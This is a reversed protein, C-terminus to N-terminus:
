KKASLSGVLEALAKVDRERLIPAVRAPNLKFKALAGEVTKWLRDAKKDDECLYIEGVAESLKQLSIGDINDYYRQVIKQQYASLHQGKAM